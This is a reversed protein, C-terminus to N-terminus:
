AATTAIPRRTLDPTPEGTILAYLVDPDLDAGNPWRVTGLESDATVARFLKPDRLPAFVGEFPVIAAVDIEGAAGDEFEVHLRYDGMAEVKIVDKLM